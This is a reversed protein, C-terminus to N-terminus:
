RNIKGIVETAQNMLDEVTLNPNKVAKIYGTWILKELGRDQANRVECRQITNFYFMVDEYDTLSPYEVVNDLDELRIMLRTETSTPPAWAQLYIVGQPYLLRGGTLVPTFDIGFEKAKALEMNVKPNTTSGKADFPLRFKLLSVKPKMIKMWVYMQATNWVIDTTTPKDDNAEIVTRIDSIFLIDSGDRKEQLYAAIENTMYANLTYIGPKKLKADEIKEISIVPVGGYPKIRFPNPDILVFVRDPFLSALFAGKVSPAAGAYVVIKGRNQSLFQVESLLLKRQGDHHNCSSLNQTWDYKRRGKIDGYTVMIPRELKEAFEKNMLGDMFLISDRDTTIFNGDLSYGLIRGIRDTLQGALKQQDVLSMESKFLSLWQQWAGIELGYDINNILSPIHQTTLGMSNMVILRTRIVVNYYYLKNEHEFLNYEKIKPIKISSGILENVNAQSPLILGWSIKVSEPTAPIQVLGSQGIIVLRTEVSRSPAWPQFWVFGVMFPYNGGQEKHPLRMKVIAAFPQLVSVLRQQVLSFEALNKGEGPPRNPLWDMDVVLLIQKNRYELIAPDLVNFEGTGGSPGLIFRRYIKVNRSTVFDTVGPRPEWLDFQINPFMKALILWRSIVKSQVGCVVVHPIARGFINLFYLDNVFKSREAVSLQLSADSENSTKGVKGAKLPDARYKLTAPMMTYNIGLDSPAPVPNPMTFVVASTFKAMEASEADNILPEKTVQAPGIRMTKLSNFYDKWQPLIGGLSTGYGGSVVIEEEVKKKGKGSKSVSGIVEIRQHKSTRKQINAEDIGFVKTGHMVGAGRGRIRIDQLQIPTTLRINWRPKRNNFRVIELNFKEPAADIARQIRTPSVKPLKPVAESEYFKGDRIVEITSPFYDTLEKLVFDVLEPSLILKLVREPMISFFSEVTTAYPSAVNSIVRYIEETLTFYKRVPYKIIERRESIFNIKTPDLGIIGTQTVMEPDAYGGIALKRADRVFNLKKFDVFKEQGAHHRFQAITQALEDYYVFLAGNFDKNIVPPKGDAQPVVIGDIHIRQIEVFNDFPSIRAGPFDPIEVQMRTELYNVLDDISPSKDYPYFWRTNIARFGSTYYRLTWQAGELWKRCMDDVTKKPLEPDAFASDYIGFALRKYSGLFSAPVMSRGKETVAIAMNVIPNLTGGVKELIEQNVVHSQIFFLVNVQLQKLYTLLNVYNIHSKREVIFNNGTARARPGEEQLLGRYLKLCTKLGGNDSRIEKWRADRPGKVLITRYLEGTLSDQHKPYMENRNDVPNWFTDKLDVNYNVPFGEGPLNWKWSKREFEDVFVAENFRPVQEHALGRNRHTYYEVLRVHDRIGFNDLRMQTENVVVEVEPIAPLFDNGVFFSIFAFDMMDNPYIFEVGIRNRIEPINVFIYGTEFFLKWADAPTPVAIGGTCRPMLYGHIITELPGMQKKRAEKQKGTLIPERVFIINKEKAMSLVILDSDAGLVIQYPIKKGFRAATTKERSGEDTVNLQDFLKHEGEGAERHSSYIISVGEEFYGKYKEPWVESLYKDLADMFPTGPSIMTPDFFEVPPGESRFRRTRQQTMKAAPAVGDIAFMFKKRPRYTIYSFILYQGILDFLIDQVEKIQGADIKRKFFDRIIQDDVTPERDLGYKFVYQCITHIPTNLDIYLGEWYEKSEDLTLKSYILEPYTISLFKFFRPIGM